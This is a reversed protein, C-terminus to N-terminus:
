LYQYDIYICQLVAYLISPMYKGKHKIYARTSGTINLYCSTLEMLCLYNSPLHVMCTCVSTVDYQVCAAAYAYSAQLALAFRAPQYCTVSHRLLPLWDSWNCEAYGYNALLMQVYQVRLWKGSRIQCSALQSTASAACVIVCFHNAILSWQLRAICLWLLRYALVM